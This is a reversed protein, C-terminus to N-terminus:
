RCEWWGPHQRREWRHEWRRFRDWGGYDFWFWAGPHWFRHCAALEVPMSVTTGITAAQPAAPAPTAPAALPGAASATGTAGLALASSLAVTAGVAAIRHTIRM